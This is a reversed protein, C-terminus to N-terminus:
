RRPRPPREEAAPVSASSAAVGRECPRSFHGIQEGRCNAQAGAERDRAAPQPSRPHPLDTPVVAGPLIERAPGASRQLGAIRQAIGGIRARQSREGALTRARKISALDSTIDDGGGVTGRVRAVERELIEGVIADLHACWDASRIAAIADAPHRQRRRAPRRHQLHERHELGVVERRHSRRREPARMEDRLGATESVGVAPREHGIRVEHRGRAPQEIGGVQTLATRHDTAAVHARSPPTGGARGPRMQSRRNMM